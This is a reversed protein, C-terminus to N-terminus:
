LLAIFRTKYHIFSKEFRIFFFFFRSDPDGKIIISPKMINGFRRARKKKKRKEFVRGSLTLDRM